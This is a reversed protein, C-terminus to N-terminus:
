IARSGVPLTCELFKKQENDPIPITYKSVPGIVEAIVGAEDRLERTICDEFNEGTWVQGGGCEWLGHYLTRSDTRKLLLVKDGDFCICGVHVEIKHIKDERM